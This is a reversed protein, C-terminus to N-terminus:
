VLKNKNIDQLAAKGRRPGTNEDKEGLNVRHVAV